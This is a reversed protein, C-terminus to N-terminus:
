FEGALYNSRVWAKAEATGVQLSRAQVGERIKDGIEAGPQHGAGAMPVGRGSPEGQGADAAKPVRGRGAWGVRRFGALGARAAALILSGGGPV